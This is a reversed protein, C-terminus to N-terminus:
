LKVVRPVWARESAGWKHDVFVVKKAGAFVEFFAGSHSCHKIGANIAEDVSQYMGVSQYRGHIAVWARLEFQEM